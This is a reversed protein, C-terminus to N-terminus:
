CWTPVCPLICAQLARNTSCYVNHPFHYFFFFIFLHLSWRGHCMSTLLKHFVIVQLYLIWLGFNAFVNKTRLLVVLGHNTDVIQSRTVQRRVFYCFCGCKRCACVRAYSVHVVLQHFGKRQYKTVNPTKIVFIWEGWLTKIFSSLVMM